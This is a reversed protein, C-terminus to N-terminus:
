IDVGLTINASLDSGPTDSTINGMVILNGFGSLPDITSARELGTGVFHISNVTVDMDVSSACSWGGVCNLVIDDGNVPVADGDWNDAESWDHSTVSGGDWTVTAAYASGSNFLMGMGFLSVFLIIIKTYKKMKKKKPKTKINEEIYQDVHYDLEEQAYEGTGKVFMKVYSEFVGFAFEYYNILGITERIENFNEQIFQEFSGYSNSEFEGISNFNTYIYDELLEIKGDFFTM